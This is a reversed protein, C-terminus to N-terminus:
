EKMARLLDISLNNAEDLFGTGLPETLRGDTAIEIEKVQPTYMPRKTPDANYVYILAIDSPVLQEQAVITQLRRVLYESHTEIIFQINYTKYADAFMDALISQFRPHLHVEPEEFAITASEKGELIALEIRLLVVFLQTIGYGFDALLTGHQEGAMCLRIVAGLRDPDSEITIHDGIGFRQVWRNIFTNPQYDARRGAQAATIYSRLIRTFEDDAELSYLRRVSVITSSVYALSDTMDQTMVDEILQQGNPVSKMEENERSSYLTEGKTNQISFGTLYGNTPDSGDRDNFDLTVRVDQRLLQSHVNYAFSIPPRQAQEQNESKDSTFDSRHRIKQFSGLINNPKRTFDLQYKHLRIPQNSQKDRQINSLFDNLLVLSKVISSKGSSNSGTLITIPRINITVGDQDFVRFNRISYINNMKFTSIAPTSGADLCPVFISEVRKDGAQNELPLLVPAM